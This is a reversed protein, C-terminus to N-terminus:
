VYAASVDLSAKTALKDTLDGRVTHDNNHFYTHIPDVYPVFLFIKFFVEISCDVGTRNNEIRFFTNKPKKSGTCM